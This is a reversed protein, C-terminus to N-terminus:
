IIKICFEPCYGACYGCLICLNPNVVSRGNVLRLANYQCHKVCTGCGECWDEILLIRKNNKLREEVNSDVTRGEFISVNALVEDFSKMGVAISHLYPLSLIYSFAEQKNKILNGGGLSKMAYIGKGKKYAKEIAKEMDHLSGDKIGIGRLNIIPHIIEIEDMDTAADVVEITHTSVGIARILGKAKADLLYELADRHGKLTLRTEQEHLMFIDIIDKGTERRAKEVSEKMGNYTYAYSKTSIILEKKSKKLAKNIYQYNKYFEATDIFNVGMDLASLIVDAGEDLSLNAQLPSITLSGFCLYSVEINTDGLNRYKM